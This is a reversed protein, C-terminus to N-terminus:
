GERWVEGSLPLTDLRRRTKKFKRIAYEKADFLTVLGAPWTNEDNPDILTTMMTDLTTEADLPQAVPKTRAEM